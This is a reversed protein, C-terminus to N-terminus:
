SGDLLVLSHAVGYPSLGNHRLVRRSPLNELDTSAEARHLGLEDRM